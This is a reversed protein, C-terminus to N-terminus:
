EVKPSMEELKYEYNSGIPEIYDNGTIAAFINLQIVRKLKLLIHSLTTLGIIGRGQNPFTEINM